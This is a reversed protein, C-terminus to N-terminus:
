PILSVISQCQSIDSVRVVIYRWRRRLLVGHMDIVANMSVVRIDRMALNVNPRSERQHQRHLLIGDVRLTRQGFNMIVNCKRIVSLV